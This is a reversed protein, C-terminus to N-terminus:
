EDSPPDPPPPNADFDHDSPPYKDYYDDEDDDSNYEYSAQRATEKARRLREQEIRLTEIEQRRKEAELAQMKREEEAQKAQNEREQKANYEDVLKQMRVPENEKALRVLRKEFDAPEFILIVPDLALLHYHSGWPIRISRIQGCINDLWFKKSGNTVRRNFSHVVHEIAEHIKQYLKDPGECAPYYLNVSVTVRINIKTDCDLVDITFAHTLTHDHHKPVRNLSRKILNAIYATCALTLCTLIVHLYLSIGIAVVILGIVLAKIKAKPKPNM